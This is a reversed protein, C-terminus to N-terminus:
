LEERLLASRGYLDSAVAPFDHLLSRIPQYNKRGGKEVIWALEGERTAIIVPRQRENCTFNSRVEIRERVTGPM